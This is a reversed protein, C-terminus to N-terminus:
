PTVERRDLAEFLEPRVRFDARQRGPTKGARGGVVALWGAEVLVAIAAKVRDAKTLGPLRVHRRLERANVVTPRERAIWRALTAADRDAEPLAADGYVRQAMPTFYDTWLAIGRLLAAHSVAGPPPANTGAVELFELVLALRLVLGPAKGAASAMLGGLGRTEEYHEERWTQLTDAADPALRLVVPSPDGHDDAPMPLERLWELARELMSLDVSRRPRRPPMPKPWTWLFRSALGDDDESLVLRDLRVPQTTGTISVAMRPIFLTGSGKRDIRHSRAGYCEIWMAREGAAAGKAYRGFGGLWAALEDRLLWVGRPNGVMVSALAEPTVDSVKLRPCNPPPPSEPPPPPPEEGDKKARAAARKWAALEIEAVAAATRWAELELDFPDRWRREISSVARALPDLAPSKSSSPDGVLGAWLGCPEQWGPWPSVRVANGITGAAVGLLGCAVYDVPTGAGEAADACWQGWRGLLELPLSPAPRRYSELVRLDPEAPEGNTGWGPSDEDQLPPRDERPPASRPDRMGAAFGSRITRVIEREELGAALGAATLEAM